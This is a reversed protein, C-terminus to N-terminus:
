IFIWKYWDLSKYYEETYVKAKLMLLRGAWHFSSKFLNLIHYEAINM